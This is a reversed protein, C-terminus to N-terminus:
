RRKRATPLGMERNLKRTTEKQAKVLERALPMNADVVAPDVGGSYLVGEKKTKRAAM